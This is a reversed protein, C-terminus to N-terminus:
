AAYNGLLALLRHAAAVREASARMWAVAAALAERQANLLDLQPKVEVRVEHRVNVVAEQAARLQEAAAREVLEATRIAQFGAIVLEEVEAQAQRLRAEAAREEASAEAIRGSTRGGDHIQWSVRVGVTATDAAYDPFFQDRVYSADAFAGVRPMREARALRTAARSAALAAQAQAIAPSNESAAAIAEGLTAPTVPPAPLPALVEADLGTLTRLRARSSVVNGEAQALGARAEASRAAAQLVDTRAVEGADFRLQAQREIEALEEILQRHLRREETATLVAGYAGAVAAILQGRTLDRRASAVRHGARAQDIAASARGGTFLPQEAGVQATRPVVSEGELGFFGRPDIWGVGLSGNVAVSPRRAARAQTLRGAAADVNAESEAVVPARVLAADIAEDLTLAEAPTTQAAVAFAIPLFLGM